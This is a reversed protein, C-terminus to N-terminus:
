SLFIYRLIFLISFLYIIFSVDRAKGTVLKLLSFSIFGFAIGETISFTLPIMVITLFASINEVPDDWNIKKILSMMLSGVIILVPAIVPYLRVNEAVQYGEGVMKTLPYFFLALIFLVGTVVNSLGSRSGATIGATSEIYSTVTSTGLLAGFMTGVADSLLAKRARPLKGNEMLEGKEAVGILTGITDFLDLFFFIFIVSLFDVSKFLGPIDLQLFTPALSPPMAVLGQYKVVGFPIGIVATALIGILFAGNVRLVFLISTIALGIIAVQTASSAFSGLSVLTGPNDVVLGAWELGILAILLGIGVSIAHKLADPVSDIIKVRVQFLSLVVFCMGSIFVAALASEWSYGMTGCVILAFFINHGMAPALAIPYNAYIGMMITAVASAICTAAMVAGFDMGPQGSLIAAQVFIIYSMTMFTTVGGIIERNVTTNLEKLKFFKDL